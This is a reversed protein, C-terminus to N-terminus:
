DKEIRNHNHLWLALAIKAEKATKAKKPQHESSGQKQRLKLKGQRNCGTCPELFTESVNFPYLGTGKLTLESEKVKSFCSLVASVIGVLYKPWSRSFCRDCSFYPPNFGCYSSQLLRNSYSLEGLEASSPSIPDLIISLTSVM